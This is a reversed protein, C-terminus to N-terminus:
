MKEYFEIPDLTEDDFFKEFRDDTIPKIAILRPIDQAVDFPFLRELREKVDTNVDVM